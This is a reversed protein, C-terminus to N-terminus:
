MILGVMLVGTRDAGYLLGNGTAMMVAPAPSIVVVSTMMEEVRAEQQRMMQWVLIAEMREGKELLCSIFVAADMRDEPAWSIIVTM